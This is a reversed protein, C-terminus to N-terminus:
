LRLIPQIEPDDSDYWEQWTGYKEMAAKKGAVHDDDAQKMIRDFGYVSYAKGDEFVSSESWQCLVYPPSIAQEDKELAEEAAAANPFTKWQGNVPVSIPSENLIEDSVETEIEEESQPLSEVMPKPLLIRAVREGNELSAVTVDLGHDLLKDTYTDLSHTPLGCMPVRRGGPLSRTTLYLGLESSTKKADEGYIEFFDGVQYFVISDPHQEKISDYDAFPSPNPNQPLADEAEALATEQQIKAYKDQEERTLYRNQRILEDIRKAAQKWNLHVDPCGTKRFQFGKGDHGEYSGSSGSM